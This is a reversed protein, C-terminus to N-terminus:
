LFGGRDLPPLPIRAGAPLTNVGQDCRPRVATVGRDCRKCVRPVGTDCGHRVEAAGRGCRQRAKGNDLEDRALEDRCAADGAM